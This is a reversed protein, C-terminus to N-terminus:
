DADIQLTLGRISAGQELEFHDCLIAELLQLLGFIPRDLLASDPLRSTKVGAGWVVPWVPGYCPPESVDGTVEIQPLSRGGGRRASCRRKRM